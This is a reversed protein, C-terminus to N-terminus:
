SNKLRRSVFVMLFTAIMFTPVIISSPFEPVIQLLNSYLQYSFTSSELIEDVLDWTEARKQVTERAIWFNFGVGKSVAYDM